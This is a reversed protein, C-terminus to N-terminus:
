HPLEQELSDLYDAWAQMMQKREELFKTRNYAEGLTDPVAHALQHEIVEPPFRLNEHLLTRAMARFGHATIDEKTNYGMRQLAANLAPESIPRDKGRFGPFVFISHNTFVYIEEFAKLTQRSLPVIHDKRLKMREAPIKWLKEEFNIEEWKARQLEGPRVFTYALLKLAYRIILFEYGNIARLLAGIEKPDLLTPYHKPKISILVGRGLDAAPDRETVGKVIGYRFIMSIIQKVRHTTEIKELDEIRRLAAYLEPATITTVFRNGLFPLIWKEIRLKVTKAHGPTWTDKRKEYWEWALESFTLGMSRAMKKQRSPDIGQSLTKRANDREQRAERLSVDPYIGLSITKQKGNFTYKFRWWKKGSPNIILFLGQSDYLKYPKDKLKANRIAVDTLAM